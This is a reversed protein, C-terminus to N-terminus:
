RRATSIAKAAKSIPTTSWCSSSRAAHRGPGQFRGLQARAGHRRLRRLGDARRELTVQQQGNTPSRVAIQEGQALPMPGAPPRCASRRRRRRPRVQAAARAPDLQAQRRRDRRRASARRRSSRPDSLRRDETRRPDGPARGEFADSSLTQIHSRCASRSRVVATQAALPAPPSRSRAQACALSIDTM